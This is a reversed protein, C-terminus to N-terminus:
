MRECADIPGLYGPSTARSGKAREYSFVFIETGGSHLVRHFARNLSVAGKV